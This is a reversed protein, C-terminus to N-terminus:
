SFCVFGILQIGSHPRLVLEYDLRLEGSRNKCLPNWRLVMNEFELPDM